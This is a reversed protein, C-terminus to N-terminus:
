AAPQNPSVGRVAWARATLAITGDAAIPLSGRVRERLATRGDESLSM